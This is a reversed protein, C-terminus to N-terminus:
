ARRLRRGARRLLGGCTRTAVDFLAPAWPTVTRDASYIIGQRWARRFAPLDAHKLFRGRSPPATASAACRRM